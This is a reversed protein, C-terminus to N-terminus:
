PAKSPSQPPSASSTPGPPAPTRSPIAQISHQALPWLLPDLAAVIAAALQQRAAPPPTPRAASIPGYQILVNLGAIAYPPEDGAPAVGAKWGLSKQLAASSRFEIIRLPWSSIDANILKVIDPNGGGATANNAVIGLKAAGLALFVQDATVPETLHPDPTVVPTPATTPATSAAAAPGCGVALVALLGAARAPLRRLRDSHNSYRMAPPM